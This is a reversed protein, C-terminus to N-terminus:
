WGGSEAFEKVLQQLAYRREIENTKNWKRRARQDALRQTKTIRPQKPPKEDLARSLARLLDAAETHTIDLRLTPLTKNRFQIEGGIPRWRWAGCRRSAAIAHEEKRIREAEDDVVLSLRAARETPTM